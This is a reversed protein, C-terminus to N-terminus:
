KIHAVLAEKLKEGDLNKGIIKGNPDILFNSPIANIGYLKAAQNEWFKLDSVHTWTLGDKHIADLWADKKGERDLSVSLVTFNKDKFQHYAAVVNPNEKRCPGCWSAWFDLLVYKGRFDKLSVPKGLTDNQTFDMAMVGVVTKKEVEVRQSIEKGLSTQQVAPSLSNYMAELKEIDPQVVFHRTIAYASVVSGPHAQIFRSAAEKRQDAIKEWVTSISDQLRTDTRGKSRSLTSLAELQDNFPRLAKDYVAYDKQSASGKVKTAKMDATDISLVINSNEGFFLFSKNFAAGFTVLLPLPNELQGTFSFRGDRIETSDRKGGQVFQMLYVKGEKVGKINGSITYGKGQQAFASAAVLLLTLASGIQKM